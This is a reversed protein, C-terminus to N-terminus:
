LGVTLPMGDSRTCCRQSPTVTLPLQGIATMSSVLVSGVPVAPAVAGRRRRTRAATALIPPPIPTRRGITTRLENM